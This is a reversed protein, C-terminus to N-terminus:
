LVAAERLGKLVELEKKKMKAAQRGGHVHDYGMLHLVGHILLRALEETLTADYDAAQRRTTELSIVVDGILEADGTPFSLVDTPKDISRYTRNLERIAEDGTFLISLEADASVLGKLATEVIKKITKKTPFKEQEPTKKLAATDKIEVKLIVRRM